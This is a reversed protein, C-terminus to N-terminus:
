IEELNLLENMKVQFPEVDDGYLQLIRLAPYEIHVLLRARLGYVLLYPSAKTVFKVIMRDAWLAQDILTHWTRNNDEM